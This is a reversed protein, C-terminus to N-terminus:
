WFPHLTQFIVQLLQVTILGPASVWLGCAAEGQRLALEVRCSCSHPEPPPVCASLIFVDTLTHTLSLHGIPPRFGWIYVNLSERGTGSHGAPVGAQGGSDQQKSGAATPSLDLLPSAFDSGDPVTRDAQDSIPPCPDHTGRCWHWCMGIIVAHGSPPKIKWM